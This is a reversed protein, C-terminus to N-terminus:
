AREPQAYKAVTGVLQDKTLPKKLYENAGALKVKQELDPTASIIIVPIDKVSRNTKLAKCIDLGDIGPLHQDLIFLDPIDAAHDLLDRGSEFVQIEYGEQRLIIQFIERVSIDDDVIFIKTKM